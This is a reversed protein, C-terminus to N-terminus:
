QPRAQVWVPSTYALSEGDANAVRVFYWHESDVLVPLAHSLQNGTATAVPRGLGTDNSAARAVPGSYLELTGNFPLGNAPVVEVTLPVTMDAMCRLRSGMPHGEARMLIRLDGTDDSSALAYMRRAQMASKLDARDLSPALIVTKGYTPEGWSRDHVDEGGVAGVHWGADLAAGYYRAYRDDGSDDNYLEMGVMQDDVSAEYAFDNWNCASDSDGLCKDGPHNFIGLGDAGGGLPTTGPIEESGPARVLWRWFPDMTLLYGGDFKANTFNSSFFVNIHGFRDSTWEFGRVAIFDERTDAAAMEGTIQWKSFGDPAPVFCQLVGSLSEFCESGISFYLLRNLTDSHDSVMMFDLGHEAGAKFADHPTADIAGDSYSTHEHVAGRWPKLDAVASGEYPDCVPSAEDGQSDDGNSGGTGPTGEGEPTESDGNSVLSVASDQHCGVLAACLALVGVLGSIRRM